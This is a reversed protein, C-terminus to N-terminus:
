RTDSAPGDRGGRASFPPSRFPRGGLRALGVAALIVLSPEAAARYRTVGFTTAAVVTVLVFMAVLPLVSVGERRLQIVGLIALPVLLLYAVLGLTAVARPRAWNADGYDLNDQPEYVEWVREVRALAVFPLSAVHERAYSRARRTYCDFQELEGALRACSSRAACALSVFGLARSKDYTAPCNAALVAFGANTSLLPARDFEVWNRVVWPAVVLAAAAVCVAAAGIRRRGVRWALPAVLIPLMLVAESRTLAALGVAVGLAAGAALTPHDLFRYSLLLILVVIPLYLSESTLSGDAMFLLPYIAAIGAAILGARAGGVRRAVVGILAITAAGLLCCAVRHGGIGSLGFRTFGDLGCCPVQEFEIGGLGLASWAALFLPFLPPHEATPVPDGAVVSALQSYGYGNGLEWALSRYALADGPVAQDAALTFTYLLRLAFGFLTLGLLRSGFSSM